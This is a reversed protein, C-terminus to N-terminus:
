RSAYVRTAGSKTFAVVDYPETGMGEMGPSGAPMGPVALGAVDSPHERLLRAIVDAPVHGEIAYGGVHATHCSALAGPVGLANKVPQVDATDHVEVRYGAQQLHEVWAKCCGCTPSKYVTVLAAQAVQAGVPSSRTEGAGAAAPQAQGPSESGVKQAPPSACAALALIGAACLRRAARFSPQTQRM